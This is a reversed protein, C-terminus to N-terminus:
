GPCFYQVSHSFLPPNSIVLHQDEVDAPDTPVFAYKLQQIGNRQGYSPIWSDDTHDQTGHWSKILCSSYLLLYFLGWAEPLMHPKQRGAAWILNPFVQACRVNESKRAMM